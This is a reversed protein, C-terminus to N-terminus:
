ISSVWVLLLDVTLVIMYIKEPNLPNFASSPRAQSPRIQLNHDGLQDWAQSPSLWSNVPRWMCVCHFNDVLSSGNCPVAKLIPM